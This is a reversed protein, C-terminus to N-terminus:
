SSAKAERFAKIYKRCYRDQGLLAQSAKIMYMLEDDLPDVIASDLGAALAMVLFCRNLQVRRPLGFSVNSLGCTTHVTPFESKVLRITDLAIQGFDNQVSVPQILPDLYIQEPPVGEALIDQILKKAVAFRDATTNTRGEDGMALALVPSEYQKVLCIIKPFKNAEATISNILPKGNKHLELGAQLAQPNPSDLCLPIQVVEQVVPVLWKMLEVEEQPFAGTNVDLYDAGAAQQDVALKQLFAVDKDAIAQKTAKRTSNIKEGIIIM